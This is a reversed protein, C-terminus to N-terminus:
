GGRRFLLSGGEAGGETSPVPFPFQEMTEFGRRQYFRLARPNSHRCFLSIGKLGAEQAKSEARQM